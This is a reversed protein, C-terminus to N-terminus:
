ELLPVVHISGSSHGGQHCHPHLLYRMMADEFSKDDPYKAREPRKTMPRRIPKNNMWQTIAQEYEWDTNYEWHEPRAEKRNHGNPMTM